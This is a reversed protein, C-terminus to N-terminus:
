GFVVNKEDLSMLALRLARDRQASLNGNLWGLCEANEITKTAHLALLRMFPKAAPSFKHALPQEHISAFPLEKGGVKLTDVMLSPDVIVVILGILESDENTDMDLDFYLKKRDFAKEIDKHLRLFNRPSNVDEAKLDVLDMGKGRTFKPWIHSCIIHCHTAEGLVMCFHRPSIGYYESVPELMLKSEAEVKETQESHINEWPDLSLAIVKKLAVHIPELAEKVIRKITEEGSNIVGPLPFSFLSTFLANLITQRNEGAAHHSPSNHSGCNRKLENLFHKFNIRPIQPQIGLEDMIIEISDNFEESVLFSGIKRMDTISSNFLHSDGKINSFKLSIDPIGIKLSAVWDAVQAETWLHPSRNLEM